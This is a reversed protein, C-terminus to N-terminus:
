LCTTIVLCGGLNEWGYLNSIIDQICIKNQWNEATDALLNLTKVYLFSCTITHVVDCM